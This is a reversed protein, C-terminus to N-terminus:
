GVDDFIQHVVSSPGGLVSSFFEAVHEFGVQMWNRRRGLADSNYSCALKLNRKGITHKDM